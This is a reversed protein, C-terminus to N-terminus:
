TIVIDPKLSAALAALMARRRERRDDDIAAGTEDLLTRFDTGEVQVPPLQVFAYPEDGPPGIPMGGSALTVAHGARALAGALHRARVLHGSGLLHTVAILTRRSM